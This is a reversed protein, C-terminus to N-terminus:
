SLSGLLRRRDADSRQARGLDGGARPALLMAALWFGVLILLAQASTRTLASVALAIAAIVLLYLLYAACWLLLRLWDGAGAIAVAMIAALLVPLALLGAIRALSGLKGRVLAPATVGGALLPRLTGRERERAILGAALVFIVLPLVLQLAWAISFTGLDFVSEQDEVPRARAPNWSHAELWVASGAYPTVGPYLLAMATLPRMAWEGFHAAGHPNRAGQDNWTAVDQAQAAARDAEHATVRVYSTTLAALAILPALVALAVLRRDRSFELWDKRALSM